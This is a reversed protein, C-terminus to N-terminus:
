VTQIGSYCSSNTSDGASSYIRLYNTNTVVLRVNVFNNGNASTQSAFRTGDTLGINGSNGTPFASIVVITVGSSPQFNYYGVGATANVGNVYDGVAM